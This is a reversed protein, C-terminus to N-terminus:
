PGSRGVPRPGLGRVVAVASGVLVAGFGLGKVLARRGWARSSPGDGSGRPPPGAPPAPRDARLTAGGPGLGPVGPVPFDTVWARSGFDGVRATPSTALHGRRGAPRHRGRAHPGRRRARRSVPGSGTSPWRDDRRGPLGARYRGRGAPGPPGTWSTTAQILGALWGVTPGFRRSATAVGRGPGAADRRGGLPGERHVRDGGRGGPGCAAVLWAALPPKELWPRGDITPVLVAGGRDNRPGGPGRVGRPVDAAGVFGAGVRTSLASLGVISALRAGWGLKPWRWRARGPGRDGIGSWPRGRGGACGLRHGAGRRGLFPGNVCVGAEFIRSKAGQGSEVGLLPVVIRSRRRGRPNTGPSARQSPRVREVNIKTRLPAAKSAAPGLRRVASAARTSLAAPCSTTWSEVGFSAVGAAKPRITPWTAARAWPRGISRTPKARPSAQRDPQRRDLREVDPRDQVGVARGVEGVPEGLM